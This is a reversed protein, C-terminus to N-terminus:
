FEFNQDFSINSMRKSDYDQDMEYLICCPIESVEHLSELHSRLAQISIQYQEYGRYMEDLEEM